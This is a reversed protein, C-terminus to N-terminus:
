LRKKTEEFTDKSCALVTGIPFVEGAQRVMESSLRRIDWQATKDMRIRAIHYLERLNLSILLRLRHANTLIYPAAKPSLARIKEYVDRTGEVARIFNDKLGAEVITEPVEVGLDPNYDQKIITAMRHRKLQAFCSSSIIAEFTLGITEFERMARDYSEMYKFSSKVIEEVKDKEMGKISNLLTEHDLNTLPFVLAAALRFEGDRTYDVLKLSTDKKGKDGRSGQAHKTFSEGILDKTKTDYDTGKTYKIVSPAYPSVADYITKSLEVAENLGSASLRRLTMELVRANATMGMQTLTALPVVYRADEKAWGDLTVKGRKDEALDPHKKHIFPLLKEYLTHYTGNLSKVADRFPTELGADVIEKPIVHDDTLTIYRQSKETYSALRTRQLEETVLRSIGIIDLNFVAHEAVSSHGMGFIISENSRRAKEVEDLANLRLENVPRPDRSIRAYAASFTEPTLEESAGFRDLFGEIEEKDGGILKLAAGKYEFLREKDVNFGSLIVKM